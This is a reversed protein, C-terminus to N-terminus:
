LGQTVRLQHIIAPDLDRGLEQLALLCAGLVPPLEALSIQCQPLREGVAERLPLVFIDGARFLGGVLALECPGAAMGLRRAVALICDALEQTGQRILRLSVQDGGRAAEIVLPALAAIEARSMGTVYLRHMIDNMHALTLRQQVLDLLPTSEVRGDFAGVAMRMAQMGFWYSSGEDSILHGWGGARWDEGARNRGYCSSGTGAIQVIGPRGSLGGALAIRCDHDIGIREPAALALDHAIKRIAARDQPSVVGAMGLFAAEFPRNDLGAMQRAAQVALGINAQAVEVGVDDYNSPGAQGLGCLRGADDVIAVHTKTGGGDVGLVYRAM